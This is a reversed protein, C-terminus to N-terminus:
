TKDGKQQNDGNDPWGMIKIQLFNSIRKMAACHVKNVGYTTMHEGGKIADSATEGTGAPRDVKRAYVMVQDYGYEDAIRKAASIPIPKM